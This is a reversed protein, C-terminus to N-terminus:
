VDNNKSYWLRRQRYVPTTESANKKHPHTHGISVMIYLLRYFNHSIPSADRDTMDLQLHRETARIDHSCRTQM